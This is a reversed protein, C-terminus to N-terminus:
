FAYGIFISNFLGVKEVPISKQYIVGNKKFTKVENGEYRERSLIYGISFGTKKSISFRGFFDFEGNYFLGDLTIDIIEFNILNSIDINGLLSTEQYKLDFYAVGSISKHSSGVFIEHAKIESGSNSNAYGFGFLTNKGIKKMIGFSSQNQISTEQEFDIQDIWIDSFFGSRTKFELYGEFELQDAGINLFTGFNIEFGEEEIVQNSSSNQALPTSYLSLVLFNLLAALKYKM